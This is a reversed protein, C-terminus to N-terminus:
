TSMFSALFIGLMNLILPHTMINHYSMNIIFMAEIQVQFTLWCAKQIQTDRGWLAHICVHLRARCKINTVPIWVWSRMHASKGVAVVEVQRLCFLYFSHDRLTLCQPHEATTEMGNETTMAVLISLMHKSIAQFLRETVYM